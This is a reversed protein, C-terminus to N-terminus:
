APQRQNRLRWYELLREVYFDMCRAGHWSMLCIPELTWGFGDESPPELVIAFPHGEAHTGVSCGCDSCSGSFENIVGSSAQASTM